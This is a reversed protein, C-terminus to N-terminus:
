KEGNEPTFDIDIGTELKIVEEAIEEILNDKPLNFFLVTIIGIIFFVVLLFLKFSKSESLKLIANKIEPPM